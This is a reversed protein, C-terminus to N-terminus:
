TSSSDLELGHLDIIYMSYNRDTARSVGSDGEKPNVGCQFNLIIQYEDFSFSRRKRIDDLMTQPSMFFLSYYRKAREFEANKQDNTITKISQQLALINRLIKKIGFFSPLQLYRANSILMHEMLHGLGAFIFQQERKPLRMSVLDDCEGLEANLDVIYPDPEGAECDARYNGHRMSSDLHYITRCRVDIRITDLILGSLQEYTKLLAQFRLAMEHSLPLRLQDSLPISSIPYASVGSPLELNTPSIGDEPGAKLTNLGTAFWSVSRYLSALAALNRISPILDARTLTRKGLFELELNTEQQYLQYQKAINGELTMLLESVCISLESRQAWQTALALQPEPNPEQESQVSVLHQFHDSCRQYFQIIVGLILRTYNERHFPSAHLMACLSNILAMLQTSAKVLPEPSLLASTPDPQFSEPGTVADHFLDSVKEELQPLYVRLVFEDLIASSTRASEGGFPLVESIRELFRLTPQFLVGVHFADPRIILRHHQDNELMRDDTGINTLTAQAADGSYTTVLGPMTDNLVRTLGDEHPKLTKTTSRIDTDALRFVAKTKDRMFKGERLIENISSIPNRGSMSGQEEDTIYDYILTRVEAQIPNWVEALPFLSGPKTGSPDKFDRRSGVRNAVEYVVRLGQAVADLKSYLTWFLDRIIEHDVRKASSELATLRLFSAKSPTNNIALVSTLTPDGAFLYVGESGGISNNPSINSGKRGYEVREEVEDLTTEVLLFIEAPLRQAITDLSNGLKGLVALSEILMEMYTFSDAEPNLLSSTTTLTPIFNSMFSQTNSRFGLDSLDHPPDNPRVALDDLFRAQRTRSFLPSSSSLGNLTTKLAVGEEFETQPFEQQNPVYTSWRGDCWFSKLFLHNQLEDILIERLAIEQGFFYNRLDTVAGIELMDPKNITKLSRVLLVSAQLLRKESVLTELLDPVSKLHEIQDLLHLMEELTQGRSWLQVLDARRNGLVEKVELISTRADHIQSQAEGLHGLLMAQHPLSAAFAQYHKDVSGKLARGLMEKTRRFSDMDKGLSSDDLLQLALDVNNFDPDVIFEWGDKVQDLIADIDGARAKGNIGRGPVKERIRQQRAKEAEIENQREIHYEMDESGNTMARRRSGASKFASMASALSTPTVQEGDDSPAGQLHQPKPKSKFPTAPNSIAGTRSRYSADSRTTSVSDRRSVQESGSYDSMRNRLESRQPRSPVAPATNPPATRVLNLGYADSTPTTPREQRSIQLPRTGSTGAASFPSPVSISIDNILSPDRRRTPFPPARSM